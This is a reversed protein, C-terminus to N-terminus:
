APKVKKGSVLQKMIFGFFIGSLLYIILSLLLRLLSLPQHMIFYEFLNMLIFMDIGFRMGIHKWNFQPTILSLPKSFKEKQEALWKQKWNDKFWFWLPATLIIVLFSTLNRVCPIIKECHDCYLGFWNQFATNNQPTWKLGSHLTDCHPCPIFSREALPKSNDKEILTIKPVRQGLILENVMLGPNIIWHLVMPSKWTWVKYKTQDINM